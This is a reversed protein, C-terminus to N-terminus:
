DLLHNKIEMCIYYLNGSAISVMFLHIFNSAKNSMDIFQMIKHKVIFIETFVKKKSM